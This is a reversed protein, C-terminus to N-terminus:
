SVVRLALTVQEGVSGALLGSGPSQFCLCRAKFGLEMAEQSHPRPCAVEGQQAETEEETVQAWYSCGGLLPM